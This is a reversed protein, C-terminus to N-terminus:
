KQGKERQQWSIFLYSGYEFLHTYYLPELPIAETGLCRDTQSRTKHLRWCLQKCFHLLSSSKPSFFQIHLNLILLIHKCVAHLSRNLMCNAPRRWPLELKSPALVDLQCRHELSLWLPCQPPCPSDCLHQGAALFADLSSYIIVPSGYLEVAMDQWIRGYTEMHQQQHMTPLTNRVAIHCERRM